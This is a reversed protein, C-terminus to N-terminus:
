PPVAAFRGESSPAAEADVRATGLYRAMMAHWNALPITPGRYQTSGSAMTWWGTRNFAAVLALDRRQSLPLIRREVNDLILPDADPAPYYALVMHGEIARREPLWISGVLLRLRDEAVGHELLAFFKAIALDECDGAARAIVEAPTAWYERRGWLADDSTQAYGNFRANVGLLARTPHLAQAHETAPETQAAATSAIWGALLM